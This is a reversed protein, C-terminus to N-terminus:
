LDGKKRNRLNKNLMKGNTIGKWTFKVLLFYLKECM